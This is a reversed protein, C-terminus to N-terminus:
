TMRGSTGFFYRPKISLLLFTKKKIKLIEKIKFLANRLKSESILGNFVSRSVGNYLQVNLIKCALNQHNKLLWDELNRCLM